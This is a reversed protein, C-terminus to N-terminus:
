KSQQFRAAATIVEDLEANGGREESDFDDVTLGGPIAVVNGLVEAYFVKRSRTGTADSKDLIELWKSPKVKQLTYKNGDTSTFELQKAKGEKTAM